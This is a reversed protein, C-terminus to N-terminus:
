LLSINSNPKSIVDDALSVQTRSRVLRLEGEIISKMEIGGSVQYQRSEESVRVRSYSDKSFLFHRLNNAKDLVHAKFHQMRCFYIFPNITANIAVCLVFVVNWSYSSMWLSQFLPGPYEYKYLTVLYLIFQIFVPINFMIYVLTFIIITISANVKIRSSSRCNSISRSKLIHISSIACSFIVPIIPCGLEIVDLITDVNRWVEGSGESYCYTDEPLYVMRSMKLALPIGAQLSLAICYLGMVILISRKRFKKLPFILSHTRTLSLVAVMFVSLHPVVTNISGWFTCFGPLAFLIPDRHGIYSVAVPITLLSVVTDNLSICLYICTSLEKRQSAFYRFANINGMTGFVFCFLHLTALFLDLERIYQTSHSEHLHEKRPTFFENFISVNRDHQIIDSSM